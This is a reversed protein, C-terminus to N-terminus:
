LFIKSLFFKFCIFFKGRRQEFLMMNYIVDNILSNVFVYVGDQHGVGQAQAERKILGTNEIDKLQKKVVEEGEPADPMVKMLM